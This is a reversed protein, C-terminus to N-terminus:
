NYLHLTINDNKNCRDSDPPPQNLDTLSLACTRITRHTSESSIVCYPCQNIVSIGGAYCMLASFCLFNVPLYPFINNM